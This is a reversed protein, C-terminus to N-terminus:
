EDRGGPVKLQTRRAPEPEGHRELLEQDILYLLRHVIRGQEENVAVMSVVGSRMVRLSISHMGRLHPRMSDPDCKTM